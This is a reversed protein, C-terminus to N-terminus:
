VESTIANRSGGQGGPYHSSVCTPLVTLVLGVEGLFVDPVVDLASKSGKGCEDSKM